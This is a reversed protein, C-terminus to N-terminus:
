QPETRLEIWNLWETMDIEKSNWPSCSMLKGVLTWRTLAIIKGTTMYRHSLQFIFFASCNISKFQHQLLSKLIGQVGLLELWDRRFFILGSYESSPSISFSWCKIVQHSSSVWQFLGLHQSPNFTPPSLSSLPHSPQIADSVRHSMLKLFSQSNNISLSAQLGHHRLSNSM